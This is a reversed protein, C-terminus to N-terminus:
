WGSRVARAYDYDTKDLTNGYGNQFYVLWADYSNSTWTTASWYLNSQTPGPFTPDICPPYPSEDCGPASLDVIGNLEEIIPM